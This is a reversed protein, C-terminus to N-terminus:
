EPLDDAIQVEFVGLETALFDMSVDWPDKPLEEVILSSFVAGMKIGASDALARDYFGKGKGIRGGKSDFGLGPIIFGSIDELKVASAGEVELVPELIGAYATEFGHLPKLFKLQTNIVRPFVWNLHTARNPLENLSIESDLAQYLCWTGKQSHLFETLHEILQETKTDREQSTLSAFQARLQKRWNAKM